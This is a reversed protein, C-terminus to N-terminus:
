PSSFTVQVPETATADAPSKIGVSIKKGAAKRLSEGKKASRITYRVQDGTVKCKVKLKPKKAKAPTGSAQVSYGGSVKQVTAPLSPQVQGCKGAAASTRAQTRQILGAMQLCAILVAGAITAFYANLTFDGTLAEQPTVLSQYMMTCVLLKQGKTLTAITNVFRDYTDGDVADGNKPEVTVTLSKTDKSLTPTTIMSTGNPPIETSVTAPLHDGDRLQIIQLAPVAPARPDVRELHPKAQAPSAALMAGLLALTTAVAVQRLAV